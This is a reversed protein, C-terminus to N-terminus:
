MVMHNTNELLVFQADPIRAAMYHAESVPALLDGQSHMILAPFRIHPLRASVDINDIAKRQMRSWWGIQEDMADPLYLSAFMDRFPSNKRGWGQQMLTIFAESEALNEPKGRQRRGRPFRIAVPVTHRLARPIAAGVDPEVM